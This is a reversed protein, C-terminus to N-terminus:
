ENREAVKEPSCQRPIQHTDWNTKCNTSRCCWIPTESGDPAVGWSPWLESGCRPCIHIEPWEEIEPLSIPDTGTTGMVIDFPTSGDAPTIHLVVNCNAPPIERLTHEIAKRCAFRYRAFIGPNTGCIEQAWERLITLARRDREVDLGAVQLAGLSKAYESAERDARFKRWRELEPSPGGPPTVREDTIEAVLWEVLTPLNYTGDDNRPAGRDRLTSRPIGTVKSATAATVGSVVQSELEVRSPESM